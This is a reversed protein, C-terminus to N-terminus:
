LSLAVGCLLMQDQQVCWKVLKAIAAEVVWMVRAPQVGSIRSEQQWVMYAAQLACGGEGACDQVGALQCVQRHHSALMHNHHASALSGHVCTDLHSTLGLWGADCCHESMYTAHGQPILHLRVYRSWTRRSRVASAAGSGNYTAHRVGETRRTNALATASLCTLTNSDHM